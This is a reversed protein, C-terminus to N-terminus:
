GLSLVKRAIEVISEHPMRLSLTIIRSVRLIRLLHGFKSFDLKKACKVCLIHSWIQSFWVYYRM